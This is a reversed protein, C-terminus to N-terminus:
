EASLSADGTWGHKERHPCDTPFYYFNALDSRVVMEQISNIIENDSKFKGVHDFSSSMEYFTLLDKTAQEDTLGIVEVYRFGHYTFHPMYTDKGNGSCYLIDEQFHNNPSKNFAFRINDYSPKGDILTEFYKFTIKQGKTGAINIECLGASNVGFDYVYHGDVKFFSVPEIKNRIKIPSAECLMAEGTPTPASIAFAWDSDDFQPLNWGDIEKSADYYEGM